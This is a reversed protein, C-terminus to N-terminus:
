QVALIICGALVATYGAVAPALPMREGRLIAHRGAAYSAFCLIIGVTVLAPGLAPHMDEDKWLVAFTPSSRRDM